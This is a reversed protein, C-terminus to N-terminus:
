MKVEIDIPLGTSAQQSPDYYFTFETWFFGVPFSPYGWGGSFLHPLSPIIYQWCCWIISTLLDSIQNRTCRATLRGDAEHRMWGLHGLREILTSLVEFRLQSTIRLSVCCSATKGNSLTPGELVVRVYYAPFSTRATPACHPPYDLVSSSSGKTCLAQSKNAWCSSTCRHTQNLSRGLHPSHPNKLPNLKVSPTMSQKWLARFCTAPVGCLM